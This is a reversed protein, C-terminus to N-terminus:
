PEEDEKAIMDTLRLTLVDVMLVTFHLREHILFFKQAVLPM